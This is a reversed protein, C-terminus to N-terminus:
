QAPEAPCKFCPGWESSWGLGNRKPLSDFCLRVSDLPGSSVVWLERRGTAFLAAQQERENEFWSKSWTRSGKEEMARQGLLV